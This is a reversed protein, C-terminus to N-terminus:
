GLKMSLTQVGDISPFVIRNSLGLNDPDRLMDPPLVRGHMFLTGRQSDYAASTSGSAISGDDEFMQHQKVEM